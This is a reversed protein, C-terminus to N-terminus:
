IAVGSQLYAKVHQAVQFAREVCKGVAPGELYNGAFYLGAISREADRIAKV